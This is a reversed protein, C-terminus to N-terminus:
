KGICFKSFIASLIDETVDAGVIRGLEGLAQRTELTLFEPSVEETLGSILNECYEISRTLAEKHRLNTILVEDKAPPGHDWLVRDILLKLHDIGTEEKASIAVVAPHQM